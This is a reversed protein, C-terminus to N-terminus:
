QIQVQSTGTYRKTTELSAVVQGVYLQLTRPTTNHVRIFLEGGNGLPYATFGVGKIEPVVTIHEVAPNYQVGLGTPIDRTEGPRIDLRESARIGTYVDGVKEPFDVSAYRVIRM